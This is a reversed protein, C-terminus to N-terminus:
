SLVSDLHVIPDRREQRMLCCGWFLRGFGFLVALFSCNECSFGERSALVLVFGWATGVEHHLEWSPTFGARRIQQLRPVLRNELSMGLLRPKNIVAKRVKYQTASPTFVVPPVFDVWLRDGTLLSLRKKASASPRAFRPERPAVKPPVHRELAMAAALRAIVAPCFSPCLVSFAFAACCGESFSKWNITKEQLGGRNPSLFCTPCRGCCFSIFAEPQACVLKSMLLAALSPRMQIGAHPSLKGVVKALLKCWRLKSGSRVSTIVYAVGSEVRETSPSVVLKLQYSM